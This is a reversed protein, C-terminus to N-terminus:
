LSFPTRMESPLRLVEEKVTKPSEVVIIRGQFHLAKIQLAPFVSLLGYELIAPPRHGCPVIVCDHSKDLCEVFVVLKYFRNRVDVPQRIAKGFFKVVGTKHNCHGFVIASDAAPALCHVAGVFEAESLARPFIKPIVAIEFEFRLVEVIFFM